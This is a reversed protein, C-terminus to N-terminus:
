RQTHPGLTAWTIFNPKYYDVIDIHVEGGPVLILASLTQFITYIEPRSM